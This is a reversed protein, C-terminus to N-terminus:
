HHIHHFVNHIISSVINVYKKQCKKCSTKCNECIDKGCIHCDYKFKTKMNCCGCNHLTKLYNNCVDHEKNLCEVCIKNILKNNICKNCFLQECMVCRFFNEQYGYIKCKSCKNAKKFCKVCLGDKICDSCTNNNCLSCEILNNKHLCCSYCYDFHFNFLCDFEEM